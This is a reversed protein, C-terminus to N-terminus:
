IKNINTWSYLLTDSQYRCIALAVTDSPFTHYQSMGEGLVYSLIIKIYYILMFCVYYLLMFCVYYLLM